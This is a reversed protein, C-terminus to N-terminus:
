PRSWQAHIIILIIFDSIHTIQLLLLQPQSMFLINQHVILKAINCCISIYMYINLNSM